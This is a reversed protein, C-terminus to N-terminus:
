IKLQGKFNRMRYKELASKFLHNKSDKKNNWM